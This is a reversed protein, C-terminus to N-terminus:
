AIKLAIINTGFTATAMIKSGASLTSTRYAAAYVMTTTGVTIIETVTVNMYSAGESPGGATAYVMKLVDSVDKLGVQYVGTAGAPTYINVIATVMWSGATLAAGPGSYWVGNTTMVVDSPVDGTAIDIGQVYKADTESKSYVDLNTRADAATIAGTGGGAISLVLNSWASSLWNQITQTTANWRKSYDPLTTAATVRSDNMRVADDDRSKLYALFNTYLDGITPLSWNAM